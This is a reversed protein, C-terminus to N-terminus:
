FKLFLALSFKQLQYLYHLTKNNINENKSLFNKEFLDICECLKDEYLAHKVLNIQDSFTEIEFFINSFIRELISYYLIEDGQEQQYNMM